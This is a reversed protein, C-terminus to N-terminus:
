FVQVRAYNGIFAEAFYKPGATLYALYCSGFHGLVVQSIVDSLFNAVGLWFSKTQTCVLLSALRNSGEFLERACNASSSHRQYPLQFSSIKPQFGSSEASSSHRESFQQNKTLIWQERSSEAGSYRERLAVDSGNKQGSIRSCYQIGTNFQTFNKISRQQFKAFTIKKGANILKCAFM